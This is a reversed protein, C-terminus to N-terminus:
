GPAKTANEPLPPLDEINPMVVIEIRRNEQKGADTNNSGIPDFEGYGAAALNQPQVGESILFETVTVARATSLAWNDKFKGGGPLPVNDTHGAVMFHRDAFEKLIAAVEKLTAEGDKSLEAHGSAFLVGAPMKMIMLGHRFLVQIKGASIMKQFRATLKQFAELRKQAEAHQHRLEELEKKTASLNKQMADLDAKTVAGKQSLDDIEKAKADRDATVDALAKKTTDRDAVCADHDTQCQKLQDLTSQYQEKPIGCAALGIAM